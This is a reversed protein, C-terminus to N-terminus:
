HLIEDEDEDYPGIESIAEAMAMAEYTADVIDEDDSDTLDVLIMGAEQPRISAAAEIAALLLFKDVERSTVLAAIHPWAADVEWVGAACVAEYHIDPIGCDLAELIQDNFGRIFRMCFVATLKWADDESLYAARVAERHWDQPARVSAELIYRRVDKPVETDMYMQRLSRQIRTFTDESIPMDDPDEFGEIYAQELAPGLSIAARGRLQNSEDGNRVISLLADALADNIVVSDGALEAAILRDSAEAKDDLLTDTLLEEVGEPWEWPPTDKLINLSIDGKKRKMM